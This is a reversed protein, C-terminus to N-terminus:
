DARYHRSDLRGADKGRPAWCAVAALVVGGIGGLRGV